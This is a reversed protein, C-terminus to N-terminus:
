DPAESTEEDVEAADLAEREKKSQRVGLLRNHDPPYFCKYLFDLREVHLRNGIVKERHAEYFKCFDEPTIVTRALKEGKVRAAKLWGNRIWLDVEEKRIHLLEALRRVSFCDRRAGLSLKLRRLLAYISAKSCRMRHAAEAVSYKDLMELLRQQDSQPWKRYRFRHKVGMRRAFRLCASRPYGTIESLQTVLSRLKVEPSNLSTAVIERARSSWTFTRRQKARKHKEM